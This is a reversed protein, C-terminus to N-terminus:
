CGLIVVLYRLQETHGCESGSVSVSGLTFPVPRVPDLELGGADASHTWNNWTLHSQVVSGHNRFWGSARGHVRPLHGSGEFTVCHRGGGDVHVGQLLCNTAKVCTGVTM